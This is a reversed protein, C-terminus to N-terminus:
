SEAYKQVKSGASFKELRDNESAMSVKQQDANEHIKCNDSSHSNGRTRTHHSTGRTGRHGRHGRAGYSNGQRETEHHSHKGGDRSRRHENGINNYERNGQSRYSGRGRRSHSGGRFGRSRGQNAGNSPNGDHSNTRTPQSNCEDNTSEKLEVSEVIDCNPKPRHQTVETDASRCNNHHHQRRPYYNRNKGRIARQEIEHNGGGAHIRVSDNAGQLSNTDAEAVSESLQISSNESLTEPKRYDNTPKRRSRHPRHVRSEIPEKRSDELSQDISGASTENKDTHPDHKRSDASTRPSSGKKNPNSSDKHEINDDKPHRTYNRAQQFTQNYDRQRYNRNYHQNHHRFDGHRTRTENHGSYKGSRDAGTHSSSQKGSKLSKSGNNVTPEAKPLVESKTGQEEQKEM